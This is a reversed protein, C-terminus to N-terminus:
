VPIALNTSTKGELSKGYRQIIVESPLIEKSPLM